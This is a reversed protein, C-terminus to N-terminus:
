CLVESGGGQIELRRSFFLFINKKAVISSHEFVKFHHMHLVPLADQILLSPIGPALVHPHIEM